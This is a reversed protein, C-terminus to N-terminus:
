ELLDHFCETQLRQYELARHVVLKMEEIKVPKTVYDYAGLKMAKVATNVTAYGTCVIVMTRPDIKKVEELVQLGDSRPMKLDTIVLNFSYEQAITVAEEGDGAGHVEYGAESLLDILAERAAQEDEVVLIRKSEM